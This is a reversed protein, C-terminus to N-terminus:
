PGEKYPPSDERVEMLKKIADASLYYNAIKSVETWDLRAPQRIPKQLLPSTDCNTVVYLWYCDQRDEAVRRENSTRLVLESAFGKCDKRIM